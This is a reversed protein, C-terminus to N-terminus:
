LSNLEYEKSLLETLFELHGKITASVNEDYFGNMNSEFLLFHIIRPICQCAKIIEVNTCVFDDPSFHIINNRISNLLEINKIEAEELKLAESHVYKAMWYEADQVRALATWFGILKDKGKKVEKQPPQSTENNKDFDPKASDIWKIRYFGSRRQRPKKTKKWNIENRTFWLSDVDKNEVLIEKSTSTRITRICACYLAHHMECAIQLWKKNSTRKIAIEINKLSYIILEDRDINIIRPNKQEEM